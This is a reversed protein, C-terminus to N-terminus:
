ISLAFNEQGPHITINSIITYNIAACVNIAMILSHFADQPEDRWASIPRNIFRIKKRTGHKTYNAELLSHPPAILQSFNPFATRMWNASHVLEMLAGITTPVSM